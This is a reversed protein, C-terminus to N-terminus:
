RGLVSRPLNYPNSHYGAGQRTTRRLPQPPTHMEEDSEGGSPESEAQEGEHQHDLPRLQIQYEQESDSDGQNQTQKRARRSRRRQKRKQPRVVEEQRRAPVLVLEKRNVTRIKNNRSGEKKVDYVPGRRDVVEHVESNYHDGIKNRGVRSHDKVYVKSGVEIPHEQATQDYRKKRQEKDGSINKRAMEYAKQLRDQHEKVWDCPEPDDECQGLLFDTPLRSHRGFMLYFPEYGTASHPTSNYYFVVSALHEHWKRKQETELTGLLNHLTRNFRECQANGQPHYPTTHSKKIGYLQYLEKVVKAEFNRGQDSHIRQPVGYRMFWDRVLVKATTLATQNRTATAESFKTFVDTMVLVNELGNSSPELLTFDLTLLDLPKTAALSQMPTRISRCPPKALTCRDCGTVWEQVDRQMGVWYCRQRVLSETREVGQHGLEDHLGKLVQTKLEAPLVLQQIPTNSRPNLIERYLLGSKLALRDFQNMMIKVERSEKSLTKRCPKEGTQVYKIVPGIVPDTQQKQVIGEKTLGPFTNTASFPVSLEVVDASACLSAAKLIECRLDEPIVTVGLVSAVKEVEMEEFDEPVDPDEPHPRRSLADANLNMKGPRYKIEFNFSSLEGVWKQEVAKLKATTMIYKLPNNDTYVTFFSGILYDRFKETVAWKLALLELKMSNYRVQNKEPGRLARSAYGIVRLKGSQIQSIVAGLGKYSADTELIFPKSFDAFGLIPASVLAQKLDEFSKQCEDTWEFTAPTSIWKRGPRKKKGKNPDMNVLSYLPAARQTFQPIYRRYYGAKCLFTLTESANKPVPWSVVAEVMDPNTEVGKASIQHGLFTVKEQLLHCKSPEVKLGHQRLRTLVRDLRELHEDMDKAFIIVDDLFVLVQEQLEDRFVTNMLRQFTAPASSLGFPMRTYEFLGMPTTFATKHIDQEAVGVQAYAKRLDVVSYVKSGAMFDLTEEIRPLPYADKVTKKNLLRYDVCLRLDGSKKRALVIGSSYSSTSPRIIGQQLSKSLHQKVEQFQNPPIRTYHGRVPIDDTLPITHQASRTFGLDDEDEPFARENKILIRELKSKTSQSVSERPYDVKDLYDRNQYASKSEEELNHINAEVLVEDGPSYASVEQVVVEGDKIQFDIRRDVLSDVSSAVGIVSRPSIWLDTSSLNMMRVVYDGRTPKVVTSVAAVSGFIPHDLPEVVVLDDTKPGTAKVDVMSQGPIRVGKKGAVRVQACDVTKASKSQSSRMQKLWDQFNPLQDLVNTGLIGQHSGPDVKQILIGRDPVIYGDVEVDLEVYGSYPLELGNAARLRLFHSGDRPECKGKLHTDFFQQSITTVMSGSDLLLKVPTGGLKVTVTPASGVLQKVTNQLGPQQVQSSTIVADQLDETEQVPSSGVRSDEM